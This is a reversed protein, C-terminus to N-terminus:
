MHEIIIYMGNADQGQIELCFFQLIRKGLAMLINIDIDYYEGGSKLAIYSGQIDSYSTILNNIIIPGKVINNPNDYLTSESGYKGKKYFYKKNVNNYIMFTGKNNESIFKNLYKALHYVFLARYNIVVNILENKRFIFDSNNEDIKQKYETQNSYVFRLDFDKTPISSGQAILSVGGGIIINVIPYQNGFQKIYLLIEDKLLNFIKTEM